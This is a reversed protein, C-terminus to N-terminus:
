LHAPFYKQFNLSFNVGYAGAGVADAGLRTQDLHEFKGTPFTTSVQFVLSPVPSYLIEELMQFGVAVNTDGYGTYRQDQNRNVFLVNTVSADMFETLGYQFVNLFQYQLSSRTRTRRWNNNYTAYRRTWFFYPQPAVKGKPLVSASPALLPGTYFPSYVRYLNKVYDARESAHASGERGQLLAWSFLSPSGWLLSFFMLLKLHSRM